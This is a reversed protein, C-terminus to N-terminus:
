KMNWEDDHPKNTSHFETWGERCYSQYYVHRYETPNGTKTAADTPSEDIPVHFNVLAWGSKSYCRNNIGVCGRQKALRTPALDSGSPTGCGKQPINTSNWKFSARWQVPLCFLASSILPWFWHNGSWMSWQATRSHRGRFGVKDQNSRFPAALFRTM